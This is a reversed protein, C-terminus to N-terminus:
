KRGIRRNTEVQDKLLVKLHQDHDQGAPPSMTSKGHFWIGFAAFSSRGALREPGLRFGMSDIRDTASLKTRGRDRRQDRRLVASNNSYTMLSGAGALSARARRSNKAVRLWTSDAGSWQSRSERLRSSPASAAHLLSLGSSRVHTQKRRPARRLLKRPRAFRSPGLAALANLGRRAPDRPKAVRGVPRRGLRDARM